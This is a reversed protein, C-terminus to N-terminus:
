LCSCTLHAIGSPEPWCMSFFLTCCGLLGLLLLFEITHFLNLVYFGRHLNSCIIQCCPFVGGIKPSGTQRVYEIVHDVDILVTSLGFVVTNEFGAFPYLIASGLVAQVCHTKIGPM